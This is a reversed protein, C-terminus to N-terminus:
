RELYTKTAWHCITNILNKRDSNLTYIHDAKDFYVCTALGKFDVPNYMEQLQNKHNFSWGWNNTFIYLQNVQRDVFKKLDSMTTEKPPLDWYYVEKEKAFKKELSSIINHYSKALSKPALTRKIWRVGVKPDLIRPAFHRVYYGSTKYVYGDIMIAGIVRSDALTAKHTNDAGTCIGMLVFTQIGTKETVFNLTDTIDGAMQQEHPRSDRHKLSDGIGSLDFRLTYFNHKALERSLEVHLRFPGAQNVLGANLLIFCPSSNMKSIHEPTTLMGCLVNEKGFNYVTEIM